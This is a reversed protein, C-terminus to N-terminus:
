RPSELMGLVRECASLLLAASTSPADELAFLVSELNEEFSRSGLFEEILGSSAALDGASTKQIAEAAAKRVEQDDDDFRSQLGEECLSRYRAAHLSRRPM